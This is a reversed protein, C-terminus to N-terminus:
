ALTRLLSLLAFTKYISSIDCFPISPISKCQWIVWYMAILFLTAGLFGFMIGLERGLSAPPTYPPYLVDEERSSM